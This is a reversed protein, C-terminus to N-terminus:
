LFNAGEDENYMFNGSLLDNHAFVVPADFNNSIAQMIWEILISHPAYWHSLGWDLFFSGAMWIRHTSCFYIFSTFFFLFFLFLVDCVFKWSDGSGASTRVTFSICFLLVLPNGKARWNGSQHEWILDDWLDEAKRQRWIYSGVSWVLIAFIFWTSRYMIICKDSEEVFYITWWWVWGVLTRTYEVSRKPVLNSAFSNFACRWCRLLAHSPDVSFLYLLFFSM